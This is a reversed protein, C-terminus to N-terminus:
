HEVPIFPIFARLRFTISGRIDKPMTATMTHLWWGNVDPASITTKTGHYIGVIELNGAEEAESAIWASFRVKRGALVIANVDQDLSTHGTDGSVAMGLRPALRGAKVVRDDRWVRGSEASDLGGIVFTWADPPEGDDGRWREFGGNRFFNESEGADTEVVLAADDFWVRPNLTPPTWSLDHPRRCNSFADLYGQPIPIAWDAGDGYNSNWWVSDLYAGFSFVWVYRDAATLANYLPHELREPNRANDQPRRSGFAQMKKDIRFDWWIGFSYEIDRYINGDRRGAAGQRLSMLEKYTM